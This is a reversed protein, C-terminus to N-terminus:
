YDKMTDKIAFYAAKPQYDKDFIRTNTTDQERYHDVLGFLTVCTINAPGGADEDMDHLMKFVEAYRKAQKEFQADTEESVGISLETVQIELGLEAFREIATKIRKRKFSQM